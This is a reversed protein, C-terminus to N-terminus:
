EEILKWDSIANGTFDALRYKEKRDEIIYFDGVVPDVYLVGTAITGDDYVDKDFVLSDTVVKLRAEIKRNM